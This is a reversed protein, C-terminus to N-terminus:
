AFGWVRGATYLLVAIAAAVGFPVKLADPNDLSLEPGPLHFRLFASLMRGTNTLTQRIRRKWIMLIIAMLGAVLVTVFLVALMPQPGLLAGFAGMLKGDGAGLSRTLVFPLLVALGLAMGLLSKEAGRWGSIATNIAIGILASTVTLQNPIRRWRWDTFGAVLALLACLIWIAQERLMGM